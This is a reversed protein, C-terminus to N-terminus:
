ININRRKLYIYSGALVVNLMIISMVYTTVNDLTQPNEEPVEQEEPLGGEIDGTAPEIERDPEPDPEPEVKEWQAYLTVEEFNDGVLNIFPDEDDFEIQNNNIDKLEIPNDVDGIYAKWGIFIYGEREFTNSSLNDEVDYDAHTDDMVGTGGNPYYHIVYNIPKASAYIEHDEIADEFTYEYTYNNVDTEVGDIKVKDIIYGEAVNVNITKDEKWLIFDDTETITIKDGHPGYGGTTTVTTPLYRLVSGCLSGSWTYKFNSANMLVVFGSKDNEDDPTRVTGYFRVGSATDVHKLVTDPTLYVPSTVSNEDLTIAEVWRYADGSGDEYADDGHFYDGQDVDLFSIAMNKNIPEGTTSNTVKITVDYSTGIAGEHGSVYKEQQAYYSTHTLDDRFIPIPRENVFASEVTINNVTYEVDCLTGDQLVAANKFFIVINGPINNIGANLSPEYVLVYDSNNATGYMLNNPDSSETELLGGAEWEEPPYYKNHKLAFGSPLTISGDIEAQSIKMRERLLQVENEPVEDFGTNKIELAFVPTPLLLLLMLLLFYITRKM